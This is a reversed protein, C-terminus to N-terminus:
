DIFLRYIEDQLTELNPLVAEEPKPPPKKKKVNYMDGSKAPLSDVAEETPAKAGCIHCKHQLDV